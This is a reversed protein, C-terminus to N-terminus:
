DFYEEITSISKDKIYTSIINAIKDSLIDMKLEVCLDDLNSLISIKLLRKYPHAFWSNYRTSSLLPIAGM